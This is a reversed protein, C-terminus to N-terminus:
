ICTTRGTQGKGGSGQLSWSFCHTVPNLLFLPSCKGTFCLIFRCLEKRCFASLALLKFFCCFNLFSFQTFLISTLLVPVLELYIWVHILAPQLVNQPLTVTSANNGPEVVLQWWFCPSSHQQRAMGMKWDLQSAKHRWESVLIIFSHRSQVGAARRM